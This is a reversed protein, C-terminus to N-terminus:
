LHEIDIDLIPYKEWECDDFHWWEAPQPIFNYKIMISKLLERNDIAEQPLDMYDGHAKETFDDFETPMLVENGQKDVLTLDIASGRNHKSGKRPDMVYREDPMIAWLLRQASLPRYGDWIKLGLDKTELEKQIADIKKAVDARLFCRASSYIKKKTFNDETAYRIDLIIRPNITIIDILDHLDHFSKNM